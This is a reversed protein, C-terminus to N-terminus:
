GEVDDQTPREQPRTSPRLPQAGVPALGALLAALALGTTVDSAQAQLLTRVEDTATGSAAGTGCAGSAVVHGVKMVILHDALRAIEALDHSVYVVPIAVADHLRELYPLIETKAATDLGALPEDLLLLRPQSLLARGIAVRQREGGSLKATSRALLAELGLLAVVEDLPVAVPTGARRLGFELNGRVNLHSFLDADQFVYAARRRHPALFVREDQWVEDSVRLTGRMRTLGALCRLLTTKGCGSPGFLGTIGQAPATFAVDLRFEGLQGSFRADIM